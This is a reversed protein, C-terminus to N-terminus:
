GETCRSGKRVDSRDPISRQSRRFEGGSPITVDRYGGGDTVPYVWVGSGSSRAAFLRGMAAFDPPPQHVDYITPMSCLEEVQRYASQTVTAQPPPPSTPTVTPTMTPRPAGLEISPATATPALAVTNPQNTLRVAVTATLEDM